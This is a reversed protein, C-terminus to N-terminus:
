FQPLCEYYTGLHEDVEYDSEQEGIGILNLIKNFYGSFIATILFIIIMFFLPISPSDDQWPWGSHETM